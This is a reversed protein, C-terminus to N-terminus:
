RVYQLKHRRILVAKLDRCDLQQELHNLKMRTFNRGEVASGAQKRRSEREVGNEQM